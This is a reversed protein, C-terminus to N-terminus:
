CWNQHKPMSFTLYTDSWYFPGFLYEKFTENLFLCTCWHWLFFPQTYICTHKCSFYLNHIMVTYYPNKLLSKSKIWHYLLCQQYLSYATSKNQKPFGAKFDHSPFSFQDFKVKSGFSTRSMAPFFFFSFVTFVIGIVIITKICGTVSHSTYIETVYFIHKGSSPRSSRKGNPLM